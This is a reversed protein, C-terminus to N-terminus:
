ATFVCPWTTLFHVEGSGFISSTRATFIEIQKAVTSGAAQLETIMSEAYPSNPNVLAAFRTAGPLLEHLLGLRKPALEISMLSVGTINGGPRNLSMVLGDQVPDGGTSFV